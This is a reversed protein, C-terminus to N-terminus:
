LSRKLKSIEKVFRMRWKDCRDTDHIDATIDAVAEAILQEAKQEAEKGNEKALSRLLWVYRYDDLGERYMEFRRSHLLQGDIGYVLMCTGDDWNKAQACYTWVGTGTIGYQLLNWASVRYYSYLNNEEFYTNTVPGDTIVGLNWRAQYIWLEKGHKRVQRAYWGNTEGDGRLFVHYLMPEFVDFTKFLRDAQMPDEIIATIAVPDNNLSTNTLLRISPEVSKAYEAVPVETKFIEKYPTEDAFTVMWDGDAVGMEHMSRKLAGLWGAFTKKWRDDLVSLGSDPHGFDYMGALTIIFRLREVGPSERWVKLVPEIRQRFMSDDFMEVSGDAAITVPRPSERGHIFVINIGNAKMDRVATANLEPSTFYSDEFQSWCQNPLVDHPPLAFDLVEVSGRLTKSVNGKVEHLEVKFPYIGAPVSLTRTNARLWIQRSEGAPILLEGNLPRIADATEGGERNKIYIAELGEIFGDPASGDVSIRIDLRMDRKSPGVMFVADRFEGQAMAIRMIPVPRATADPSQTRVINRYKDISWLNLEDARLDSGWAVLALLMAAATLIRTTWSQKVM